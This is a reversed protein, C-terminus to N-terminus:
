SPRMAKLLEGSGAGWRSIVRVAQTFPVDVLHVRARPMLYISGAAPTPVSPVFVAYQGDELEEIVFAPVLAEEIEVLAPRFAEGGEEGAARGVIGRLLSYGPIREFLTREVSSRAWRGPATRALLGAAFSLAVLLLIAAVRRFELDPPLANTVPSLLAFIGAITKAVLLLSLYVPLVVLLGGILTTRTFAAIRHIM